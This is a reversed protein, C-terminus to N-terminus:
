SMLRSALSTTLIFAPHCPSSKTQCPSSIFLLTRFLPTYKRDLLQQWQAGIYLRSGASEAAVSKSVSTSRNIGIRM